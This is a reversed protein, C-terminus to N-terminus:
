HDLAKTKKKWSLLMQQMAPHLSVSHSQGEREAEVSRLQRHQGSFCKFKPSLPGNTRVLSPREGKEWQMM